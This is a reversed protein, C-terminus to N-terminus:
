RKSNIVQIMTRNFFSSDDRNLNQKGNVGVWDKQLQLDKFLSPSVRQCACQKGPRGNCNCISPNM